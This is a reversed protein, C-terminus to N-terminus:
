LGLFASVPSNTFKLNLSLAQRLFYLSMQCRDRAKMFVYACRCSCVCICVCLLVFLLLWWGQIPSWAGSICEVRMSNLASHLSMRSCFSNHSPCFKGLAALFIILLISASHEPHSSCLLAELYSHGILLMIQPSPCGHHSFLHPDGHPFLSPLSLGISVKM